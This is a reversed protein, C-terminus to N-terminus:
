PFSPCRKQTVFPCAVSDEVSLLTGFAITSFACGDDLPWSTVPPLRDILLSSLPCGHGPSESGTRPFFPVRENPFFIRCPSCVLHPYVFFSHLFASVPTISSLDRGHAGFASFVLCILPVNYQTRCLSGPPRRGTSATRRPLSPAPLSFLLRNWCFYSFFPPFFLESM